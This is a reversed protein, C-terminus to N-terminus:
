TRPDACQGAKWAELAKWSSTPATGRVTPRPDLKQSPYFGKHQPGARNAIGLHLHPNGPTNGTDGLQGIKEGAKVQKGKNLHSNSGVELHAYYYSINDKDVIRVTVGGDGSNRKSLSVVEGDTISVIPQGSVKRKGDFVFIDNASYDHHVKDIPVRLSTAIPFVFKKGSCDFPTVNAIAGTESCGGGSKLKNYTEMMRKAGAQAERLQKDNSHTHYSEIYAKEPDDNHRKMDNGFKRAAAYISRKPDFRADDQNPSPNSYITGPPWTIGDVVGGTFEKYGRATGDTFQGLGTASSSGAGAKPDWRSETQILAILIAQDGKLYRGAADSVWPLWEPNKVFDSANGCNLAVSSGGKQVSGTNFFGFFLMPILLFLLAGAGCGILCGNGGAGRQM